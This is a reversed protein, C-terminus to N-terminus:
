AWPMGLQKASSVKGGGVTPAEADLSALATELSTLADALTREVRADTADHLQGRVRDACTQVWDRALLLRGLDTM